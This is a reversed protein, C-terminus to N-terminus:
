QFRIRMKARPSKKLSNQAPEKDRARQFAIGPFKYLRTVDPHEQSSRPIVPPSGTVVPTHRQSACFVGKPVPFSKRMNRITESLQAFMKAINM